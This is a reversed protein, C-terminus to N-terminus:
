NQFKRFFLVLEQIRTENEFVLMYDTKGKYAELPKTDFCNILADSLPVNEYVDTPFNLTLLDGKKSVTLNGSRHSYFNIVIGPIIKIPSCFSHQRLRLMDVCILRLPQHLGGSKIPM